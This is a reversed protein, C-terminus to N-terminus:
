PNTDEIAEFSAQIFRAALPPVIANGSGRLLGMRNPVGHALPFLTPEPAIPRQKGDACDIWRAESWQGTALGRQDHVAEKLREAENEVVSGLQSARRRREIQGADAMRGDTGDTGDTRTRGIRAREKREKSGSCGSGTSDAVAGQGVDESAAGSRHSRSRLESDPAQAGPVSSCQRGGSLGDSNGLEIPQGGLQRTESGGLKLVVRDHDGQSYAYDSGQADNVVPTPWSTSASGYIRRASARLACIRHGSPTVADSWTLDFLTSGLSVMAARLKSELSRQLAVSASSHSGHQGFIDLTAREAGRARPRSRSARVRAPGSPPTTPCAPSDSHTRGDESAPSSTDSDQDLLTTQNSTKSPDNM